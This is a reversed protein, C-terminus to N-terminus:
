GWMGYLSIMTTLSGLFGATTQGVRPSDLFYFIVPLDLANRAVNLCCKVYAIKKDKLQKKLDDTKELKL